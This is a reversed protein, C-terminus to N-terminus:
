ISIYNRCAIETWREPTTHVIYKKGKYSVQNRKKEYRRQMGKGKYGGVKTPIRRITDVIKGDFGDFGEVVLVEIQRMRQNSKERAKLQHIQNQLEWKQEELGEVDEWHCTKLEEKIGNLQEVLEAIRGHYKAPTRRFLPKVTVNYLHGGLKKTAVKVAHKENRARVQVGVNDGDVHLATVEFKNM